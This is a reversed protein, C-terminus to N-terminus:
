KVVIVQGPRIVKDHLKYAKRLTKLIKGSELESSEEAGLAEFLEPNFDSGNAEISEVGHQEITSRFQKEIMQIGTHFNKINEPTMETQLAMDFNDLLPLLDRLIPEAGYKLAQSREKIAQRRYNDFEARLYHYDNKVKDLEEKLPNLNEDLVAEEQEESKAEADEQENQVPKEDDIIPKQDESM